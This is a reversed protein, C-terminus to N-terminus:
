AAKARDKANLRYLVFHGLPHDKRLAPFDFDGGPDRTMGIKEMMHIAVENDHVAFAVVEKLKLTDFAYQLVAEAAETAYGKGWYEYDLRWAIEVAPTFAAEFEVQQIGV